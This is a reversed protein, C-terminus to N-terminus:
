PDFHYDGIGRDFTRAGSATADVHSAVGERVTPSTGKLAVVALTFSVAKAGELPCPRTINHLV